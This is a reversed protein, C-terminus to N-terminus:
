VVLEDYLKELTLEPHVTGRYRLILSAATVGLRVAEDIPIDNLLGFIVTATLADGAGTPDVIRTRVAPIYGSTDSAGYVVGFEALTVVSLDVGQNVLKRAAQLASERDTVQPDQACLASAENNNATLLCIQDLYPQLRAALLSSTTDACVPVRAKSALQFVTKLTAEPLNADVFVLAADAILDEREQIYAATLEGLVVMDELALYRSGEPDVVALYSATSHKDSIFCSAIDVGCAKAHLLLQQGLHDKGVASILSVPQGLRALNEAVNRGVGGFSVRINAPNSKGAQYTPSLPSDKLRGIMDLGAAGIVLAKQDASRKNISTETMKQNEPM